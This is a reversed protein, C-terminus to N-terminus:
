LARMTLRVCPGIRLDIDESKLSTTSPPTRSSRWAKEQYAGRESGSGTSCATSRFYPGTLQKQTPCVDNTRANCTLGSLGCSFDHKRWEACNCYRTSSM